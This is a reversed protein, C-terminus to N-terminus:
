APFEVSLVERLTGDAEDEWDKTAFPLSNEPLCGPSSPRAAATISNFYHFMKINKPDIEELCEITQLSSLQRGIERAKVMFKAVLDLDNTKILLIVEKFFDKSIEGELETEIVRASNCRGEPSTPASASGAKIASLYAKADNYKKLIEQIEQSPDM